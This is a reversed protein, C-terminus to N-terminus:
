EINQVQERFQEILTKLEMGMNTIQIDYSKSCTTNAERNLEQCLFDLRRGVPEKANLLEVATKLHVKLRDIEERIDAKSVLFVVEQALREETVEVSLEKIQQELKEKLKQPINESIKEINKVLSDVKTIIDLLAEKIKEGEKKRDECLFSCAKEFSSILKEKLLVLDEEGLKDDGTEIVGRLSLLEAASAKAIKDPYIEYLKIAENVLKELVEANVKIEANQSSSSLDLYVSINGRSLYKGAVNKMPLSLEDLFNPLKTKIDLSKGNVSKLEFFWGFKVNGLELENTERAFGTMSSISLIIRGMIFIRNM